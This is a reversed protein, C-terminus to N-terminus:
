PLDRSSLWMVRFRDQTTRSSASPAPGTITGRWRGVENAILHLSFHLGKGGQAKRRMVEFGEDKQRLPEAAV